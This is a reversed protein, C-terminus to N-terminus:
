PRLGSCVASSTSFAEWALLMFAFGMVSVGSSSAPIRSRASQPQSPRVGGAAAGAEATM